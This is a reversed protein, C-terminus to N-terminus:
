YGTLEMFGDGDHTGTVKVRGEYYPFLSENWQGLKFPSITVDINKEPIQIQWHTPVILKTEGHEIVENKFSNIAIDDQGLNEKVGEETIYSATTFIETTENSDDQQTAHMRFAMLKSGNNLHLSFWDWGMAQNNALHSTWEHDFWGKGKVAFENGEINITGQTDIFPQSYYYSRLRGDETKKSFGNDGQKIFPNVANLNLSVNVARDVPTTKNLPLADIDDTENVSIEDNDRKKPQGFSLSLSSPFISAFSNGAHENSDSTLAESNSAGDENIDNNVTQWVWDDIVAKFNLQNHVVQANGVGGAAFREEFYHKSVTHLSAHVMWQQSDSWHSDITQRDNRNNFRFLTYQLGFENGRTDALVFTLYWWELQFEPHSKHDYPLTIPSGIEVSAFDANTRIDGFFRNPIAKKQEDNSEFTSGDCASIMGCVFLLLLLYRMADRLSFRSSQNAYSKSFGLKM